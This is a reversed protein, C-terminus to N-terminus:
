GLEVDVAHSLDNVRFQIPVVETHAEGPRGTEIEAGM